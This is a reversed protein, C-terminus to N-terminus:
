WDKSQKKILYERYSDILKPLEASIEKYFNKYMGIPYTGDKKLFYTELTFGKTNEINSILVKAKFDKYLIKINHTFPVSNGFIVYSHTFRGTMLDEEPVDSTVVDKASNFSEAFWAKTKNHIQEKTMSDLEIVQEVIFAKKDKDYLLQSYSLHSIFILLIVFSKM